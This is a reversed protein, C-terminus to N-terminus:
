LCTPQIQKSAHWPNYLFPIVIAGGVLLFLFLVVGM